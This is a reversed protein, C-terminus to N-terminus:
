ARACMLSIEIIGRRTAHELLAEALPLSPNVEARVAEAMESSAAALTVEHWAATLATGAYRFRVDLVSAIWALEEPSM